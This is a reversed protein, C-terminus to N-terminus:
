IVLKNDISERCSSALSGASSLARSRRSAFHSKRATMGSDRCKERDGEICNATLPSSPCGTGATEWHRIAASTQYGDMDSM